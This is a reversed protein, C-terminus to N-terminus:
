FANEKGSLLQHSFNDQLGWTMKRGAGQIFSFANDEQQCRPHPDTSCCTGGAALDWGMCGPAPM